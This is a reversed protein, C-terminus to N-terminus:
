ETVLLAPTLWDQLRRDGGFTILMLGVTDIVGHAIVPLWLNFGGAVFLAGLMVAIIATSMAGSRGQYWHSLGFVLSTLLVAVWTATGAGGLLDRLVTLMFGRFIVEELVAAILWSVLILQILAAKSEKVSAVASHDHRGGTLRDTFPELLVVSLVQIIAGSVLGLAVTRLWGNPHSIGLSVLTTSDDFLILGAITLISLTIGIGPIRKAGTYILVASILGLVAFRM